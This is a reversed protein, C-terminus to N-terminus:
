PSTDAETEDEAPEEALAEIEREVEDLPVQDPEDLGDGLHMVRDPTIDSADEPAEGPVAAAREGTGGSDSDSGLAANAAGATDSFLDDGYGPSEVSGLQGQIDSGSDSTDSPGLAGVDRGAAQSPAREGGLISSTAM